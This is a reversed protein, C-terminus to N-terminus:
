ENLNGNKDEQKNLQSNNVDKKNIILNEVDVLDGYELSLDELDQPRLRVVDTNGYKSIPRFRVM